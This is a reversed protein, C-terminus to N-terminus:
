SFIKRLGSLASFTMLQFVRSRILPLTLCPRGRSLPDRFRNPPGPPGCFPDSSPALCGPSTASGMKCETGRYTPELARFAGGFASRAASIFSFLGFLAGGVEGLNRSPLIGATGSVGRRAVAGCFRMGFACRAALFLSLLGFVGGWSRRLEALSSDRRNRVGGSAGQAASVCARVCETGLFLPERAQFVVGLSPRRGGRGCSLPRPLPAAGERRHRRRLIAAPSAAGQDPKARLGAACSGSGSRRRVAAPYRGSM